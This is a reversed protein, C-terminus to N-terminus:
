RASGRPVYGDTLTGLFAVLAAEDKASLHLNGLDEHNVTQPVEPPPWSAVDRTNYFHIFDELTQFVGNHGYPATLAVNRLTPARFKGNEEPRHLREGLGLDTPGALRPNRPLGLNDYGGDTFLPPSGDPEPRSPHCSACNGLRPDEFVVLGRQELPTLTAQGRLFADYKSSFPNFGPTREFAAIATAIQSLGRKADALAEQGFAERFLAAYPRGRVLAVVAAADPQNMEIPNLLPGSVQDDVTQARGDWFLGGVYGAVQPEFHFAPLLQAYAASPANRKGVRGRVAGASTPHSHDPDAFGAKPDHCSACARGAPRSLQPDFYLARGLRLLPSETPPTARMPGSAGSTGRLAALAACAGERGAECGRSFAQLVRPTVDKRGPQRRWWDECADLSLRECADRYRADVVAANLKAAESARAFRLCAHPSGPPLSCAREFLRLAQAGHSEAAAEECTGGHGLSCGRLRFTLAEGPLPRVGFGSELVRAAAGCAKGEGRACAARDLALAHRMRRRGLAQGRPGGEQRLETALEECAAGSDHFMCAADLELAEYDPYREGWPRAEECARADGHDCALSLYLGPAEPFAPARHALARCADVRGAEICARRLAADRPSAAVALVAILLPGAAGWGGGSM